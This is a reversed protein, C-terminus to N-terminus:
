RNEKALRAALLRKGHQQVVTILNHNKDEVPSFPETMVDGCDYRGPNTWCMSSLSDM